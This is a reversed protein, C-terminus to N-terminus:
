TKSMKKVFLLGVKFPLSLNEIKDVNYEEVFLTLDKSDKMLGIALGKRYNM